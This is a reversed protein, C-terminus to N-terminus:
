WTGKQSNRGMAAPAAKPIMFSWQNGEGWVTSHVLPSCTVWPFSAVCLPSIIPSEEIIQIQKTCWQLGHGGM